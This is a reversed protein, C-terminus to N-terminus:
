GGQWGVENREKLCIKHCSSTLPFRETRCSFPFSLTQSSFWRFSFRLFTPSPPCAPATHVAPRPPTPATCKGDAESYVTPHRGSLRRAMIAECVHSGDADSHNFLSFQTSLPSLKTVRNCHNCHSLPVSLSSPDATPCLKKPSDHGRLHIGNKALCNSKSQSEAFM